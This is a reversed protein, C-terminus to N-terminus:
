EVIRVLAGNVLEVPPDVVVRDGVALTGDICVLGDKSEGLTTVATQVVREEDIRWVFVRGDRSLVASQAVSLRRADGEAM